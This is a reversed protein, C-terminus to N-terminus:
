ITDFLKIYADRNKLHKTLDEENIPTFAYVGVTVGDKTIWYSTKNNFANKCPSFVYEGFVYQQNAM